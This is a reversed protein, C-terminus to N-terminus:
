EQDAGRPEIGAAQKAASIKFASIASIASSEQYTGEAIKAHEANL